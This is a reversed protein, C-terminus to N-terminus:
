ETVIVCHGTMAIDIEAIIQSETHMYGTAVFLIKLITQIM